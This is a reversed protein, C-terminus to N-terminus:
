LNSIVPVVQNQILNSLELVKNQANEVASRNNQIADTFTGPIAEIASIADSIAMKVEADLDANQQVIVASLGQGESGNFEGLYVNQISRINNAFDLKSNNSFRSEEDKPSASGGNGNLPVEIKQNAVEDAIGQMGEVMESLAVEQSPYISTLQGAESFNIGYDNGSQSWASVLQQTKENLNQSAAVIYEIERDTLDSATKNGDLGWLFYELTHFGRAENNTELIGANILDGSNLINNIANVDVPWSDVSPDIGLVAVPGYIFSESKEWPSRMNKWAEKAAQLAEENGVSLAEAKENFISANNDLNAYTQTIVQASVNTLVNTYLENQQNDNGTEDTIPDNDSCSVLAIQTAVALAILVFNSKKM